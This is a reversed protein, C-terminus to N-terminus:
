NIDKNKFVIMGICTILISVCTSYVIIYNKNKGLEIGAPFGDNIEMTQGMPTLNVIATYVPRRVRYKIYNPNDNEITVYEGNILQVDILKKSEQLVDSSLLISALGAGIIVYFINIIISSIKGGVMYSISTFISIYMIITLIMKFLKLFLESMKILTGDFLFYGIFSILFFYLLYALVGIVILTILNAFYIKIKNFGFIMKNRITGNNFERVIFISVFSAIILGIFTGGRFIFDEIYLESNKYVLCHWILIYLAGIISLLFIYKTRGKKVREFNSKLLNIM